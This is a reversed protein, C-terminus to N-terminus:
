LFVARRHGHIGIRQFRHIIVQREAAPKFAFRKGGMGLEIGLGPFHDGKTILCFTKGGIIYRDKGYVFGPVDGPLGPNLDRVHPHQMVKGYRLVMNRKQHYGHRRIQFLHFVVADMKGPVGAQRGPESNHAAAAIATVDAPELARLTGGGVNHTGERLTVHNVNIHVHRM